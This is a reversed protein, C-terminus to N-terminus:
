RRMLFSGTLKPPPGWDLEEDIEAGTRRDFVWSGCIITTETVNTVKLKMEIEGGMLRSVVNGIKVHEFM